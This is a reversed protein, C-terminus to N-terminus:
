LNTRFPRTHLNDSNYLNVAPNNAWAYRIATPKEVKDHRAVVTEGDLETRAFHWGTNAGRIVFGKPATGDNTKM